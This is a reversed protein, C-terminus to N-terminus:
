AFAGHQLSTSLDPASPWPEFRGDEMETQSRVWLTIDGGRDLCYSYAPEGTAQIRCRNPTDVIRYVKVSAIHRVRHGHLFKM